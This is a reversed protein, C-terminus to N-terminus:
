VTFIYYSINYYLNKATFKSRNKEIILKFLEYSYNRHDL